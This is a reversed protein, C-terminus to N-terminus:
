RKSSTLNVDAKARALADEMVKSITSPVREQQLPADTSIEVRETSPINRLMEAEPRGHTEDELYIQPTKIKSDEKKYGSSFWNVVNYFIKGIKAGLGTPEPEKPKETTPKITPAAILPASVVQSENWTPFNYGYVPLRIVSENLWLPMEVVKHKSVEDYPVEVPEFLKQKTLDVTRPIIVNPTAQEQGVNPPTSNSRIIVGYPDKPQSLYIDTPSAGQNQAAEQQPQNQNLNTNNNNNTDYPALPVPENNNVVQLPPLVTSTTTSGHDYYNNYTNHINTSSSSHSSHSGYRALADEMVKSITSPVREQQLPADTSIEVRETSPINRLMEAEPRGHTEDELYIQPTKIKSDEKKYGSSFWNVVNYFIKGIKAGLGTPEPEKPKETTTPKITPAAILPASVVKTENWTPFNYGYVPLRIVSENLWLPMEVVKHKSVEDFPVEVPEFLKQKTLDVTRPIIVNPTAQEQGVIPPTSNSRIIVGYPDKPQSLYIDTPSAGQNQAAEQQPQNQNVNTNNYNNNTDYPALPVPENNNVVQLPPLVTSTTTSGHDYYNNYTNHINTSSSSHSSHGGYGGYSGYGYSPSTVRGLGYFVGATLLHSSLSSGGGGYGGGYGGYGGGFGGFGSGYGGGYGGGGYHNNIITPGSGYGGSPYGYGASGGYHNYVPPAAAHGYGYGGQGYSPQGYGTNTPYSSGYQQRPYGYQTQTAPVSTYTQKPYNGSSSGVNGYPRVGANATVPASASYAPPNPRQAYSPANYAPAQSKPTYRSYVPPAVNASSPKGLGPYAPPPGIPSNPKPVNWGIPKSPASSIPKPSFVSAPPASAVPKQSFVPAPPASAVPKAVNTSPRFISTSQPKPVSVPPKPVSWSTPQRPYSLSSPNSIPRSPSPINWGYSSPSPAPRTYVPSPSPRSPRFWSSSSSSPKSGWGRSGGGRSSFSRGAESNGVIILFVALCSLLIVRLQIM